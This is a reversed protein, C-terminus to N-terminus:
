KFVRAFRYANFTNSWFKVITHRHRAVRSFERLSALAAAHTAYSM